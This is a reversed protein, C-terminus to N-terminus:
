GGAFHDWSRAALPREAGDPWILRRGREPTVIEGILSVPTGTHREVAIAADEARGPPATFLLEYDEGGGVAWELPDIGARAAARRTAESVPLRDAFVRVGVGSAECLHGLDGALGDSVDLMATALGEGAIYPGELVRAVPTLHAELLPGDDDPPAAPPCVGELIARGAASAGLNGTVLLADGPRAGSRRVIRLADVEGLLTIDIVIGGTSGSLNGGVIDAGHRALEAGAGEYFADLFAVELDPPLVLSILGHRPEGGMAAIDSLNIAIARRGLQDPRIRERRFHRGEVQVDCTALVLKGPAPRLAATDDGAGLVTGRHPPPLRGRLREILGFEGLEGIRM